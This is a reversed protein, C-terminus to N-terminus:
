DVNHKLYDMLISRAEKFWDRFMWAWISHDKIIERDKKVNSWEPYKRYNFPADMGREVDFEYDWLDNYISWVVRMNIFSPKEIKTHEILDRSLEPTKSDIYEKAVELGPELRREYTKALKEVIRGANFTIKM